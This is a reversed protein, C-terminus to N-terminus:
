KLHLVEALTDYHKEVIAVDNTNVCAKKCFSDFQGKLKVRENEPLSKDKVVQFLNAQQKDKY